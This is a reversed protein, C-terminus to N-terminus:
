KVNGKVVEIAHAYGLQFAKNSLEPNKEKLRALTQADTVERAARFGDVYGSNYGMSRDKLTFWIRDILRLM